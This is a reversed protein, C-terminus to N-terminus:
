ELEERAMEIAKDFAQLVQEETRGEADNWNAIGRTFTGERPDHIQYMADRILELARSGPMVQIRIPYSGYADRLNEDPITTWAELAGYACRKCTIGDEQQVAYTGQIWGDRALLDRARTLTELTGLKEVTM